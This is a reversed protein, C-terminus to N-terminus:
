EGYKIYHGGRVNVGFLLGRENRLIVSMANGSQDCCVDGSQLESQKLTSGDLWQGFVECDNMNKM